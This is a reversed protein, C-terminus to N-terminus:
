WVKEGQSIEGLTGCIYSTKGFRLAPLIHRLGLGFPAAYIRQQVSHCAKSSVM